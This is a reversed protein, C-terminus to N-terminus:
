KQDGHHVLHALFLSPDVSSEEVVLTRDGGRRTEGGLVNMEAAVGGLRLGDRELALVRVVREELTLRFVLLSKPKGEFIGTTPSTSRALMLVFLLYLHVAKSTQPHSRRKVITIKYKMITNM